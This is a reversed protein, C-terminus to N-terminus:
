AVGNDATGMSGVDFGENAMDWGDETAWCEMAMGFPLERGLKERWPQVLLARTM